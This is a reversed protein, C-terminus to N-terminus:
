KIGNPISISVMQSNYGYLISVPQLSRPNIGNTNRFYEKIKSRSLYYLILGFAALTLAGDIFSEIFLVLGYLLNLISLILIPKFVWQKRKAFHISFSVLATGNIILIIESIYDLLYLGYWAEFFYGIGFAALLIPIVRISRPNNTTTPVSILISLSANLM